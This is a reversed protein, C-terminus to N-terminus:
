DEFLIAHSFITHEMVYYVSKVLTSKAKSIYWKMTCM